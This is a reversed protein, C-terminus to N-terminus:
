PVCEKGVRREESRAVNFFKADLRRAIAAVTGNTDPVPEVLVFAAGKNAAYLTETGNGVGVDIVTKMRVGLGALHEFFEKFNRNPTRRTVLKLSLPKLATNIGPMVRTYLFQKLNFSM